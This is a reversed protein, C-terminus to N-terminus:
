PGEHRIGRVQKSLPWSASWVGDSLECRRAIAHLKDRATETISM